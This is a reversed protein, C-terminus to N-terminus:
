GLRVGDSTSREPPTAATTVPIADSGKTGGFFTRQQYDTLKGKKEESLGPSKSLVLGMETQTPVHSGSLVASYFSESDIKWNDNKIEKLLLRKFNLQKNKVSIGFRQFDFKLGRLDDFNEEVLKKCNTDEKRKFLHDFLVWKKASDPDFEANIKETKAYERAESKTSYVRAKSESLISSATVDIANRREESTSHYVESCSVYDSYFVNKKISHTFYTVECDELNGSLDLLVELCKPKGLNIAFWILNKEVKKKEKDVIKIEEEPSIDKRGRTTSIDKSSYESVIGPNNLLFAKLEESKNQKIYELATKFAGSRKSYDDYM